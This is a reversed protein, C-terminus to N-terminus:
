ETLLHFLFQILLDTGFSCEYSTLIIYSSNPFEFLLVYVLQKPFETLLDLLNLFYEPVVVKIIINYLNM